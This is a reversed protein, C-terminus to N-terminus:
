TSTCTLGTVSAGPTGTGLFGFSTSGGAALAANYSVPAVSMNAGNATLTGNWIQSISEGNAFTWTVTWSRIAAPGATVTVGAQFNGPWSSTVQYTAHCGNGTPPPTPSTTRSPTPSPSPSRSPTPSASASRTPTPSPSATRTPSTTPTPSGTGSGPGMGTVQGNGGDFVVDSCGYFTENSDSRQWVSYIIHRGTKQPLTGTWYYYSNVSGPDGISPPHDASSFYTPEFDNWTLPGNQDWGDKTVYLYFWGPHAAWKNYQFQITAGATLHTLPWDTRPLDFGSFDFNTAGASCLQGDPIFGQTRGAGDSRLVAFWNYLGTTGSKAVAAACAPNNPIIQGTSSLGDEYCLWTRSGPIQLAGHATAPMALVFVAGAAVLGLAAGAGLLKYRLRLRM